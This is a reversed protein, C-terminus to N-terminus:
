RPPFFLLTLFAKRHKQDARRFHGVAIRAAGIALRAEITNVYPRPIYDAWHRIAQLDVTARAFEEM